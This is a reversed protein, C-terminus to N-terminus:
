QQETPGGNDQFTAGSTLRQYFSTNSSFGRFNRNTNGKEMNKWPTNMFDATLLIVIEFLLARWLSLSTSALSIGGWLSALFGAVGTTQGPFQVFTVVRKMGVGENV